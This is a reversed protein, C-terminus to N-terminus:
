MVRGTGTRRSVFRLRREPDRCANIHASGSLDSKNSGAVGFSDGIILKMVDSVGLTM